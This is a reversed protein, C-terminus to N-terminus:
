VLNIRIQVGFSYNLGPFDVSKGIDANYTHIGFILDFLKRCCNLNILQYYYEDLTGPKYLFELIKEPPTETFMLFKLIRSEVM